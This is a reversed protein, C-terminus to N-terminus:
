LFSRRLLCGSINWLNIQAWSGKGLCDLSQRSLLSGILSLSMLFYLDKLFLDGDPRYLIKFFLFSWIYNCRLLDYSIMLSDFTCTVDKYLICKDWYRMHRLYFYNLFNSLYLRRLRLNNYLNLLRGSV